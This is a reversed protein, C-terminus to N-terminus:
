VRELHQVAKEATTNWIFADKKTLDTSLRALIGYNKVFQRYYGMFGLLRSTGEGEKASALGLSSSNKQM